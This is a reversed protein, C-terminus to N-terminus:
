QYKDFTILRSRTGHKSSNNNNNYDHASQKGNSSYKHGVNIKSSACMLNCPPVVVHRNFKPVGRKMVVSIQCIIQSHVSKQRGKCCSSFFFVNANKRSFCQYCFHYQHHIFAYTSLYQTLLMPYFVFFHLRHYWKNCHIEM